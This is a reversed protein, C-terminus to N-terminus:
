ALYPMTQGTVWLLACSSRRYDTLEAATLRADPTAARASSIDIHEISDVYPDQDAAITLGGTLHDPATRLRVKTFTFNASITPGAAFAARLAAEFRTM